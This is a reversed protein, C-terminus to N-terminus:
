FRYGLRLGGNTLGRNQSCLGGNSLHEISAMMSWHANLRYGVSGAERFAARCGMANHQPRTHSGIDGNHVSVGLSTEIFLQKTLDLTWTIGAYAHSTKGALNFTGGLHPRPVLMSWGTEQLFSPKQFLIEANLDATGQEVSQPDHSFVGM